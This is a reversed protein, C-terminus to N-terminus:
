KINRKIFFKTETSVISLGIPMKNKYFPLIYNKEKRGNAPFLFGPEMPKMGTPVPLETFGLVKQKGLFDHLFVKEAVEPSRMLIDPVKIKESFVPPQVVSRIVERKRKERRLL